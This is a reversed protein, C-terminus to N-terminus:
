RFNILLDTKLDNNTMGICQIYIPLSNNAINNHIEVNNCATLLFAARKEGQVLNQSGAITNEMFHLNSCSRANLIPYDYAVFTNKQIKINRHVYFGPVLIHNEPAISIFTNGPSSNYGCEYFLNNQVTVDEVPGSEFWGSADDAILIAHMGTRYFVNNEIITKRCSTILLGRTNTREFRCNTIKVEPTWTRNEICLGLLELGTLQAETELIMEYRNILEASKLRASAIPQLTQPNIFLISDDTFFAEFGYTQHHMFRVKLRKDPMIEVVQLHTGHINVPDDHSGSTYCSDLEIQGKCGSFHFCDAFCSIIRGSQKAPAASVNKYFLNESFQAVIGLGHMYFMEINSLTINKSRSILAGCNDRYPDRISLSSGSPFLTQDFEGKFLVKGPSIEEAVAEAFPKFSSYKMIGTAPDTLITHYRKSIWGEGYFEIKNDSIRYWSDPHIQALVQKDTASLISLESMSPREYDFSINTININECNLLAFSVMKEHLVILTNNGKLTLNKCNEFCFAISKIKSLTDSETCNSIYLERKEAGEPWLDIRGAPLELVSGSTTSCAKVAKAIAESANQRSDPIVGFDVAYIVSQGQSYLTSLLFFLLFTLFHLAKM